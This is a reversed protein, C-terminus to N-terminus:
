PSQSRRNPQPGPPARRVAAWVGRGGRVRRDALLHERVDRRVEVVDHDAVSPVLVAILGVGGLAPRRAPVVDLALDGDGGVM